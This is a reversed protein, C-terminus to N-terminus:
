LKFYGNNQRRMEYGWPTCTGGTLFGPLLPKLTAVKSFCGLFKPLIIYKFIVQSAKTSFDPLYCFPQRVDAKCLIAKLPLSTFLLLLCVIVNRTFHMRVIFVEYIARKWMLSTSLKQASVFLLLM